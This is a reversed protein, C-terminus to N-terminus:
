RKWQAPESDKFQNALTKPDSRQYNIGGRFLHVRPHHADDRPIFARGEAAFGNLKVRKRKVGDIKWDVVDYLVGDHEFTAGSM